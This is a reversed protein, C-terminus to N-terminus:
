GQGFNNASNIVFDISLFELTRTPVVFIKGRITKNEFDAQTTTSTDIQVTFRDVGRQDQIRKLVPTVLQSFRALTEPLGQEFVIRDSIRRVSRRISLLLRRVNVRDLASETAYLTKQGWVVVGNSGAFSVIPNINVEYLDDMNTRSLRIAADTTTDLAGRAFGAPAFWPFSVADNHAFAGLVAVSAPVNRATDTITDRLVVDPFYAAGFSSNIGRDRFNTTSYRVSLTQQSSTVLTNNTDYNEIDMLYLADFRNEAVQLARDTIVPNRIGPIAMLQMDVENVDSILDLATNYSVVTPGLSGGRSSNEVEQTVATNTLFNEDRNFIRVGDFGGQLFFSFKALQRSTPDALDAATLARTLASSDTTINGQRVYSWSTILTVDPLSTSANYNIRINELSFLNNNFRDADLIGNTTTDITGENNSVVVNVFDTHFDPFYSTFSEITNELLTSKNPEAPDVKREFQVGWYLGKDLTKNPTTGRTLNERFPIPTQVTNYFPNTSSFGGAQSDSFASFPGSGSTVLHPAGRFGFPLATSDVEGADVASAVEVRIYKSNNPYNGETVLKAQGQATDLNYFTNYDGIVRAVYRGSSPDLSLGRYSELVIRNKDNDAFDRVLIDFTGYLNADSLSPAINEVSIKIRSNTWTGDDLAHVRFLNQPKGGFKQSTVWPSKATRYRDEFNEFNPAISSGSNRSQSGSILFAAKEFGTANSSGSLVGSGTVVAFTPHIVWDSQLVYGAQELKLPDRNLLQGFYNPATVDFSATIINPYTPDTNKLGNVLLVFEQRSSNLNVSGTVSGAANSWIAPLASNPTNTAVTSSSLTLLVGSASFIVGRVVPLGAQRLGADSFVTSSNSQSMFAGLFMTRGEIGGAVTYPNNGLNGGLSEQPLQSGVVWGAGRVRGRNTGTNERKLGQGVGLARIFTAAQANRLWESVALPGNAQDTTPEGFKVVFDQMTALTFPVFAPGKQSTGIIGAPIGVPRIGTPGSLNITRASVGASRFNIQTM